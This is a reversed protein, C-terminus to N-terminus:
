KRTLFSVRTDEVALAKTEDYLDVKIKLADVLLRIQSFADDVGMWYARNEETPNKLYEIHAELYSMYVMNYCDNIREYENKMM